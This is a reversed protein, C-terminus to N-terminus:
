RAGKLRDACPWPHLCEACAQWRRARPTWRHMEVWAPYHGTPQLAVGRATPPILGRERAGSVWHAARSVPVGFAGAVAARPHDGRRAADLYITAVKEFHAPDYIPPRGPHGM